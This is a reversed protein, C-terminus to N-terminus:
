GSCRSPSAPRTGSSSTTQRGHADWYELPFLGLVAVEHPKFGKSSRLEHEYEPIGAAVFASGLFRPDEAVIRDSGQLLVMGGMTSIPIFRHFVVYNRVWWPILVAIAVLPILLAQTMAGRQKRFQWIAWVVLLPIMVVLNPRSLSSIGLLTGAWVGRSYSPREAFRLCSDIFWLFWFTALAESGLRTTYFLASPYVAYGAAALLGVTENFCRRGISYVQLISATTVLCQTIRVVDYRHGFVRYLGAWVISIGPPRFATLHDQDEVGYSMGRYGRGEVLNWAYADYQEADGSDSIPTKNLGMVIAVGLRLAFGFVLLALLISRTRTSTNSQSM